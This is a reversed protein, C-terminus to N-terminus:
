MILIFEHQQHTNMVIIFLKMIMAQLRQITTRGKLIQILILDKAIKMVLLAQLPKM